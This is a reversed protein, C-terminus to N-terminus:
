PRHQRCGVSAPVATPPAGVEELYALVREQHRSREDDAFNHEVHAADGAIVEERGSM